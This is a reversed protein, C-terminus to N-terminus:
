SPYQYSRLLRGPGSFREELEKRIRVLREPWDLDFDGEIRWPREQDRIRTLLRRLLGAQDAAQRLSEDRQDLSLHGLIELQGAVANVRSGIRHAVEGLWLTRGQRQTETEMIPAAVQLLDDLRILREPDFHMETRHHLSVAGIVREGRKVPVAVLSGIEQEFWKQFDSADEPIRALLKWVKATHLDRFRPSDRFWPEVIMGKTRWADVTAFGYASPPIICRVKQQQDGIAARVELGGETGEIATLLWGGDAGTIETAQQLLAHELNELGTAYLLPRWAETVAEHAAVRRRKAENLLLARLSAVAFRLYNDLWEVAEDPIKGREADLSEGKKAGPLKSEQCDCVLLGLVRMGEGNRDLVPIEIWDVMEQTGIIRNWAEWEDDRPQKAEVFHEYELKRMQDLSIDRYKRLRNLIRGKLPRHIPLKYNRALGGIQQELSIIGEGSPVESITYFRARTFHTRTIERLVRRVEEDLKKDPSQTVPSLWQLVIPETGRDEFKRARLRYYGDEVRGETQGPTHPLPGWRVTDRWESPQRALVELLDDTDVPPTYPNASWAINTWVVKGDADLARIPEPFAQFWVPDPDSFPLSASSSRKISGLGWKKKVPEQRIVDALEDLLYLDTKDFWRQQISLKPFRSQLNGIDADPVGTVIWIRLRDALDSSEALEKLWTLDLSFDM